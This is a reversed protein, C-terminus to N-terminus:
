AEKLLKLAEILKNADKYKGTNPDKGYKGM